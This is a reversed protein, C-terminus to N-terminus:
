SAPVIRLNRPPAPADPISFQLPEGTRTTVKGTAIDIEFDSNADAEFQNLVPTYTRVQVKRAAMDFTLIRLWGDGGNPRSQYNALMQVIPRGDVVDSRVAEAQAGLEHGNLVFLVNANPRVLLDFVTDYGPMRAGTDKLFAHFVLIARRNAHEQLRAHAWRLLAKNAKTRPADDAQEALTTEEVLLEPDRLWGLHLVLWDAGGASFQQCTGMVRDTDGFFSTGCYWAYDSYRDPGFYGPASFLSSGSATGDHNGPLVGYPIGANDLHRMAAHANAYEATSGSHEVVDGEHVVFRIGLAERQAAIWRTQADFLDPRSESYYQTDPLVVLTFTDAARAVTM